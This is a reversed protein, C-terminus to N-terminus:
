LSPIQNRHSKHRERGIVKWTSKIFIPNISKLRDEFNGWDELFKDVDINTHKMSVVYDVKTTLSASLIEELKPNLHKKM